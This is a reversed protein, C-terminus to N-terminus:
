FEKVLSVEQCDPYHVCNFCVAWIKQPLYELSVIEYGMKLFFNPVYTLVFMREIALSRADSEVALTLAQGYGKGRHEELVALSRVEALNNWAVQLAAVGVVTSPDEPARAVYFTQLSEYINVYSRPLLLGQTSFGRLISYIAPVDTAKAKEVINSTV